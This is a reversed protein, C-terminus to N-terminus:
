GEWNSEIPAYPKLKNDYFQLLFNQKLPEFNALYRQM